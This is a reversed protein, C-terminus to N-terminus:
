IRQRIESLRMRPKTATPLQVRDHRDAAAIRKVQRQKVIVVVRSLKERPRIQDAIRVRARVRRILEDVEASELHRTREVRRAIATGSRTNGAGPVKTRETTVSQTTRTIVIDVERDELVRLKGLLQPHLQARFDEVDEVM